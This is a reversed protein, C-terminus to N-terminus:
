MKVKVTFGIQRGLRTVGIRGSETKLEVKMKENESESKTKVKM